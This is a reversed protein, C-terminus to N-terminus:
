YSLFDTRTIVYAEGVAVSLWLVAVAPQKAIWAWLLANLLFLVCNITHLGKM